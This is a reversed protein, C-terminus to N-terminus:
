CNNDPLFRRPFLKSLRGEAMGTFKSSLLPHLQMHGNVGNGNKYQRGGGWVRDAFKAITSLSERSSPEDCLTLEEGVIDIFGIYAIM